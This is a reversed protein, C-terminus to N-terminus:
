TPCFDPNIDPAADRRIRGVNSIVLKRAKDPGGPGCFSISGNSAPASGDPFFRIETRGASSRIFLERHGQGHRILTESRQYLRDANDDAFVIWGSSWDNAGSCGADPDGPCGVVRTNLHVAESRGMMLDNQLNSIAAKMRQQLTFQRLSPVATVLLVAAISVTVMLEIVTFGHPHKSGTGHGHIRM